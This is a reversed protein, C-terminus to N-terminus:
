RTLVFPRLGLTQSIREADHRAQGQNAYPGAHVRFLGGRAFIHLTGALWDIQAQMRALFNEANERSAFAGLQLFYGAAEATVPIQPAAPAAVQPPEAPPPAVSLSEPDRPPAPPASELRSPPPGPQRPAAAFTGARDPIIAEVEVMANGGGLVELKHAATYSLDIIRGEVFPGRDNIRVVVSKGNRLNTVRAYSPLPLITHAASMAYMDYVEGSSTQKGHYRRGYWTAIGRGKYPGLATMPRYQRGMVVYPQATGRNIPEVRPVADPISGINAPPNRGPGDDLYYGGPRKAPTGCGSLAAAFLLAAAALFFSSPLLIFGPAATGEASEGEARQRRGEAKM